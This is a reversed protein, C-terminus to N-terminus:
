FEIDKKSQQLLEKWDDPPNGNKLMKAFTHYADSKSGYARLNKEDNVWAYIIIKHKLDFRFFLRYQQFFKARFWHKNKKGLTDGQRYQSCAPNEPIKEFVLKRIAALRKFDNKNAYGKPNITRLKEVKDTLQNIQELICPHFYLNWGNIITKTRSM